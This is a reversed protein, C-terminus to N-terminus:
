SEPTTQLEIDEEDSDTKKVPKGKIKNFLRLNL